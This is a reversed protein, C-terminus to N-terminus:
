SRTTLAAALLDLHHDIARSEGDDLPRGGFRVRYFLAAAEVPVGALAATAPQDALHGSAAEAFERATQGTAPRLRCHRALLQLLRAYFPVTPARCSSGAPLRRRRGGRVLMFTVPLTVALALGTFLAAELGGSSLFGPATSEQRPTIADWLEGALAAQEEADYDVVLSRWLAESLRGSSHLLRSLPAPPASPADASPTPDLSLWHLLPQGDAGPRSVLAEVWAHAHSNWVEFHGEGVSVAGRFGKVVRAPIGEARLILALGGAYRECAGQKVNRLFDETPDLAPDHRSLELTYTYEGSSRLYDCLARAVQERKEPALFRQRGETSIQLDELRLQSSPRRTLRAVLDDTWEVLSEPPPECLLQEYDESIEVPPSLDDQAPRTVQRYRCKGRPRSDPRVTGTDELFNAAQGNFGQLTIVPLDRQPLLQVPDALVLSDQQRPPLTFTLFYEGPGLDPLELPPRRPPRLVVLHRRAQANSGGRAQAGRRAAAPPPLGAGSPGRGRLPIAGSVFAGLTPAGLGANAARTWRGDRYVDLFQGRWRQAVDLDLKPEGSAEEVKVELALEDNLEISGTRNLDMGPRLGTQGPTNQRPQGLADFANWPSPTGRPTALTLVMGGAAVLFLWRCSQPLGLRPWPLALLRGEPQGAAQSQQHLYFLSLSWLASCLYASFLLGFLLDSGLMCALAALLLGLAHILWYQHPRRPRFLEVVLAVMLPPGLYIPLAILWGGSITGLESDVLHEHVLWAVAAALVPMALVNAAWATLVWRGEVYYAVVLAGLVPLVFWSLGPLFPAETHGLTACALAATVYISLRFWFAIPM